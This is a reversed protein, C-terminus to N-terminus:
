GCARRSVSAAADPVTISDPLPGGRVEDTVPLAACVESGGEERRGASFMGGLTTTRQRMGTPGSGSGGALEAGSAGTAEDAVVVVLPDGERRLQVETVSGPAHRVM